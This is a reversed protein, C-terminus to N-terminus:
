STRLERLLREAEQVTEADKSDVTRPPFERILGELQRVAEGIKRMDRLLKARDLLYSATRRGALAKDLQELALDYNGREASIKHATHLVQPHDNSLVLAEAIWAAAESVDGMTQSVILWAGNNRATFNKPDLAIAERYDLLARDYQLAGEYATGRVTLIEARVEPLKLLAEQALAKSLFNILETGRKEKTLIVSLMRWATREEPWQAVISLIVQEALADDGHDVLYRAQRILV